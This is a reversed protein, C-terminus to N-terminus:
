SSLSVTKVYTVSYEETCDSVIGPAPNGGVTGGGAFLASGQSGAQHAGLGNRGVIAASSNSWTTGNYEETSDLFHPALSLSRGGYVVMATQSGAGGLWYRATGLAGGASWTSGNYEETCTCAAPAKGAALIAANVTGTSGGSERPTINGAQISWSTGNFAESKTPQPALGYALYTDVSGAGAGYYKGYNLPITTTWSSGDYLFNAPDRTASPTAGSVQIAANQTGGAVGGYKATPLAGGGSWSSGNYEETVTCKTGPQDIGGM